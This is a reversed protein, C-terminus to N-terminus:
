KKGKKGAAKKKAPKDEKDKMWPPKGKSNDDKKKGAM